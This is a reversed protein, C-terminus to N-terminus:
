KVCVCVCVLDIERYRYHLGGGVVRIPGIVPRVCSGGRVVPVNISLAPPPLRPLLAAPPLAVATYTAATSPRTVATCGVASRTARRGRFRSRHELDFRM